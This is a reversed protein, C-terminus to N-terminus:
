VKDCMGNILVNFFHFFRIVIKVNKTDYYDEAIIV